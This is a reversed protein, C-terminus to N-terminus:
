NIVIGRLAALDRLGLVLVQAHVDILASELAAADVTDWDLGQKALADAVIAAMVGMDAQTLGPLPPLHLTDLTVAAAPAPQAAPATRDGAGQKPRRPTLGRQRQLRGNAVKLDFHEANFQRGAWTVMEAHEPDEPDRLGELLREYGVPGGCDEPPCARRGDLCIPRSAPADGVSIAEVTVTHEWSDGFDYEYVCRTTKARLVDGLTVSDARTCPVEPDPEGYEEGDIRFMFLHYNKWGMAAQIALHLQACTMAGSIELRRWVPPRVGKLAVKLRYLPALIPEAAASTRAPLPNTRSSESKAPM